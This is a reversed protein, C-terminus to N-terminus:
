STKKDIDFCSSSWAMRIIRELGSISWREIIQTNVNKWDTPYSSKLALAYLQSIDKQKLGMAIGNSITSETCVLEIQIASM